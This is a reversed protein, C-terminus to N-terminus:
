PASIGAVVSTVCSHSAADAQPDSTASPIYGAWLLAARQLEGGEGVGSPALDVRGEAGCLGM